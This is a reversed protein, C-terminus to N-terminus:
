MPEDPAESKRRAESPPLYAEPVAVFRSKYGDFWAPSAGKVAGPLQALATKWGGARWDTRDFVRDLGRHRNAVHLWPRGDLDRDLLIGYSKLADRESTGIPELALQVLRGITSKAGSKWHEVQTSMLAGLCQRANSLEADEEIWGKLIPGLRRVHEDASDSDVPHDSLLLEAGALLTGLQDAQRADCGGGILAHRYVAFNDQFRPWGQLARARLGASAAEAMEIADEVLAKNAPDAPLMEIELIRSRDQADLTPPYAAALVVSGAMAYQKAGGGTGRISRAGEDGAMRRLLGIIGETRLSRDEGGQAAAEDYVIARAEDSLLERLGAESPDNTYNAQPGLAGRILRLLTSKGAKGREGYLLIHVRWAPAAGLLCLGIHGLVMRPLHAQGFVWLGRIADFIAAVTEPTTASAPPHEIAPAAVYVADGLHMGAKLRARRARGTRDLAGTGISPAYRYMTDGCHAVIADGERWVGLSRRPTDLKWLGAVACKRMLRAAAATVDIEGTRREKKDVKGFHELLWAADGDMLSLLGLLTLDRPAMARIEGSAALFYYRGDRQGLAVAPCDDLPDPPRAGDVADRIDDDSM